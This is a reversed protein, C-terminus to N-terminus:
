NVAKVKTQLIAYRTNLVKKPIEGCLLRPVVTNCFDTLWSTVLTLTKQPFYSERLEKTLTMGGPFCRSLKSTSLFYNKTLFVVKFNAFCRTCNVHSLVYKNQQCFITTTRLLNNETFLNQCSIELM